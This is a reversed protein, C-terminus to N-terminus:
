LPSPNPSRLCKEPAHMQLSDNWPKLKSRRAAPFQGPRLSFWAQLSSLKATGALSESLKLLNPRVDRHYTYCAFGRCQRWRIELGSWPWGRAATNPDEPPPTRSSLTRSNDATALAPVIRGIGRGDVVPQLYAAPSPEAPKKLFSSILRWRPWTRM